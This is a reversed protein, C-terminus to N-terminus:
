PFSLSPLSEFSKVEQYFLKSNFYYGILAAGKYPPPAEPKANNKEIPFLGEGHHSDSVCFFKENTNPRSRADYFLYKKNGIWVHSLHCKRLTSDNFLFCYNVGYYGAPGGSWHQVTANALPLEPPRIRGHNCWHFFSLYFALIFTHM